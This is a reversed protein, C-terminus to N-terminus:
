PKKFASTEAIFPKHCHVCACGQTFADKRNSSKRDVRLLRQGKPVTVLTEKGCNPCIVRAIGVSTALHNPSAPKPALASAKAAAKQFSKWHRDFKEALQEESQFPTSFINLSDMLRHVDSKTTETLQLSSLPDKVDQHTIGILLPAVVISGRFYMGGAEWHVWRSSIGELTLSIVAARSSKVAKELGHRWNSGKALDVDSCWPDVGPIVKPIWKKLFKAMSRGAIGAWGLFFKPARGRARGKRGSRRTSRGGGKSAARRESTDEYTGGDSKLATALLDAIRQAGALGEYGTKEGDSAESVLSRMRAYEGMDSSLLDESPSIRRVVEWATVCNQFAQSPGLNGPDKSLARLSEIMEKVYPKRDKRM